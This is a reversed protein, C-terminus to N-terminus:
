DTFYFGTVTISAGGSYVRFKPVTATDDQFAGRTKYFVIKDGSNKASAYVSSQDTDTGFSSFNSVNMAYDGYSVPFPLNTIEFTGTPTTGTEYLTISANIFVTNGLKVYDCDCYFTYGSITPSWFTSTSITNSNWTAINASSISKVHSPITPDVEITHSLDSIDSETLVVAGTKGAVSTVGGTSTGSLDEFTATLDPLGNRELTITKTTTGSVEIDTVFDNGDGTGVAGTTGSADTAFEIATGTPLNLADLQATTGVVIPLTNPASPHWMVGNASVSGSLPSWVEDEDGTELQETTTNWILWVQDNPIDYTDRIATTVKGQFKVVDTTQASLSASIFLLLLLIKKM